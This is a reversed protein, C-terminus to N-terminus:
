HQSASRATKLALTQGALAAVPERLCQAIAANAASSYHVIAFRRAPEIQRLCDSMDLFPVGIGTLVERAM